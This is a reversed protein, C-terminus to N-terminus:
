EERWMKKEKPKKINKEQRMKEKDITINKKEVNKKPAEWYKKRAENKKNNRKAWVRKKQKIWIKLGQIEKNEYKNRQKQFRWSWKWAELCITRRNEHLIEDNKKM